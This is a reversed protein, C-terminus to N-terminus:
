RVCSKWCGSCHPGSNCKDGCNRSNCGYSGCGHCCQTRDASAGSLCLLSFVALTTVLLRQKM